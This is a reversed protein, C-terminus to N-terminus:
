LHFIQTLFHFYYMICVFQYWRMGNVILNITDSNSRPSLLINSSSVNVICVYIGTNNFESNDGNDIPHFELINEFINESSVEPPIVTIDNVVVNEENQHIWSAYFFVPTDVVDPLTATCTVNILTSEYIIAIYPIILITVNPTPVLSIIFLVCSYDQYLLM